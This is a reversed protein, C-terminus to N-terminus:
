FSEYIIAKGPNLSPLDNRVLVYVTLDPQADPM